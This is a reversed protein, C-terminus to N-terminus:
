SRHRFAAAQLAERHQCGACLAMPLPGALLEAACMGEAFPLQFAGAAMVRVAGRVVFEQDAARDVLNSGTVGLFPSGEQVLGGTVSFQALQWSEWPLLWSFISFVAAGARGATGRGSEAGM